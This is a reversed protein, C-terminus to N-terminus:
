VSRGQFRAGAAIYFSGMILSNRFSKKDAKDQEINDIITEIYYPEIGQNKFEETIEQQSYNRKLLSEVQEHLRKIEISADKVPMDTFRNLHTKLILNLQFIIRYNKRHTTHYRVLTKEKM